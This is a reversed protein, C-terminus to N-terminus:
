PDWGQERRYAARCERLWDVVSLGNEDAWERRADTWRRRAVEEVGMRGGAPYTVEDDGARIWYELIFTRFWAPPEVRTEERLRAPWRGV